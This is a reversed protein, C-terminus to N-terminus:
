TGVIASMAANALSLVLFFGCMDTVTTLIPASALAPDIKLSKLLLPVCGGLLVSIVTNLALAGGVVMGLALSGKWVWAVAGLMIGLVIGNIVGLAGEKMAIRLFEHPRILGLTLERISVAIAQSGANGSMDSVIPLFVALAIIAQLTDEYLAIVSAAMINLVINPGLFALRRLCRSGLPMTRLEEGGIIGSFSLFTQSAREEAAEQVASKRLVGVLADGDGVVPVGIFAHDEFFAILEQLPTDARVFTPDAIMIDRIRTARKSLLVDRLRLVGRLKGDRTTIYAYQVEYDSYTESNERLDELVQGVTLEEDYSLFEGIMIGGATDDPYQLLRRVREASPADMADLIARADDGGVESLMDAQSASPLEGLIAAADSAEMEEFLDAAQEEPLDAMLDAAAERSLTQLLTARSDSDLRSLVLATDGPSLTDFFAPIEDARDSDLYREITQWPRPDSPAPETATATGSEPPPVPQPDRPPLPDPPM